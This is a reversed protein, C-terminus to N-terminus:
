IHILSLALAPLSLSALLLSAALLRLRPLPMM